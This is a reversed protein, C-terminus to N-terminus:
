QQHPQPQAQLDATAFTYLYGVLKNYFSNIFAISKTKTDIMKHIESAAYRSEQSIKYKLLLYQGLLVVKLLKGM